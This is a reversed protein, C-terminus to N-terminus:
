FTVNDVKKMSGKPLLVKIFENISVIIELWRQTKSKCPNPVVINIAIQAMRIPVTRPQIKAKIFIESFLNRRPIAFM